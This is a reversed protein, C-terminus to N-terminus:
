TSPTTGVPTADADPPGTESYRIIGSADVRFYRVGTVGVEIPEALATFNTGTIVPLTFRYGGREVGEGWTGNLFPPSNSADTLVDWNAFVHKDANYSTQATAILNLGEIAATENAAIRSRLLAPLAIACLVAIIAVVIMLEILTFGSGRKM